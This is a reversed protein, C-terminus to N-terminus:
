LPSRKRQRRLKAAISTYKQAANLLFVCEITTGVSKFSRFGSRSIGYM